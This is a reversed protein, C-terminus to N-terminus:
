TLPRLTRSTLSVKAAINASAPPVGTGGVAECWNVPPVGTGGLGECCIHGGITQIGAYIHRTAVPQGGGGGGAGGGGGGRGAGTAPVDGFDTHDVM